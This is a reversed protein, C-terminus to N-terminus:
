QPAKGKKLWAAEARAAKAHAAKRATKSIKHVRKAKGNKVTTGPVRIGTLKM